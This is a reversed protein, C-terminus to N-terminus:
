PSTAWSSASRCSSSRTRSGGRTAASGRRARAGRVAGDRRLDDARARGLPRLAPPREGADALGREDRRVLRLLARLGDALRRLLQNSLLSLPIALSRSSRPQAHAGDIRDRSPSSTCSAPSRWRSRSRPWCSRRGPCCTRRRTLTAYISAFLFLTLFFDASSHAVLTARDIDLLVAISCLAGTARGFLRRGILYVLVGFASARVASLAFAAPRQRASGPPLGVAAEPVTFYSAGHLSTTGTM